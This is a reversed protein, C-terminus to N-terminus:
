FRKQFPPESASASGYVWFVHFEALICCRLLVLTVTQFVSRSVAVTYQQQTSPLRIQPQLINRSLWSTHVLTELKLSIGSSFVRLKTTIMLPSFVQPLRATDGRVQCFLPHSFARIAISYQIRSLARPEPTGAAETSTSCRRAYLVDWICVETKPRILYAPFSSQEWSGCSRFINSPDELLRNAPHQLHVTPIHFAQHHSLPRQHFTSMGLPYDVPMYRASEECADGFLMSPELTHNHPVSNDTFRYCSCARTKSAPLHLNEHSLCPIRIYRLRM